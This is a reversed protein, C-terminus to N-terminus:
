FHSVVSLSAEDEATFQPDSINFETDNSILPDDVDPDVEVKGDALTDLGEIQLTLTGSNEGDTGFKNQKLYFVLYVRDNDSDNVTPALDLKDGSVELQASDPVYKLTKPFRIKLAIGNPHVNSIDVSVQARDGTDIQNPSVTISVDAAGIFDGSSSDGGGGCAFLSISLSFLAAIQLKLKM